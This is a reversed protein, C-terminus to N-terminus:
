GAGRQSTVSLDAVAGTDAHAAAATRGAAVLVVGDLVLVAAGGDGRVQARQAPVIVDELPASPVHLLGLRPREQPEGREPAPVLDLGFRDQRYQGVGAGRRVVGLVILGCRRARLVRGSRPYSIASIMLRAWCSASKGEVGSAMATAGM